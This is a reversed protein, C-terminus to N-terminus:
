RGGGSISRRFKERDTMTKQIPNSPRNQASVGRSKKPASFSRRIVGNRKTISMRAGGRASESGSAQMLASLEAPTKDTKITKNILKEIERLNKIQSPMVFSIAKGSKGARATRGIRHVYDGSKEPLDFNIVLEIEKVDIGRAAIDTAILIRYKGMKFGELASRRQDLSRNSHIEAASFGIQSIKRTLGKVSHKTRMFILVSGKTESLIKKLYDFKSEKDIVFIEQEVNEASTGAPAVEIRTPLSMYDAAIKVIQSPMTASFLMTQRERPVLKLISKIQPLFGMDLMMDAEDLVLIKVSSLDVSRREAHDILRGPTAIIIHPKTKLARLQRNIPEGGILVSTRLGIKAGIQKLNEDVQLALERTPLIVLGTGKHIALLQLMPIGFALTKGTGTQAIGVLDKRELSAPIAQVQIPTPTLYELEALIQLLKPAIGLGNFGQVNRETTNKM